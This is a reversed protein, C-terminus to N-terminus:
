PVAVIKMCAGFSTQCKGNVCYLPGDPCDQTATCSIDACGNTHSWVPGSAVPAGCRQYDPCALAAGCATPECAGAASCTFGTGCSTATCPPGCMSGVGTASCADAVAHCVDGGSCGTTDDCGHMPAIGCVPGDDPGVCGLGSACDSQAQCRDGAGGSTGCGLVIFCACSVLRLSM